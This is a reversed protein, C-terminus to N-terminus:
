KYMRVYFVCIILYNSNITINILTRNNKTFTKLSIM